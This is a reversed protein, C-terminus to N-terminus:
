RLLDLAADVSGDEHILHRLARVMRAPEPSQWINLGFVVVRAGADLTVLAEGVCASAIGVVRDPEPLQALADRLAGCAAQWLAEPDHEAWGPRPQDIPTPASGTAIVEGETTVVLARIQTTGFDVGIMLPDDNTSM